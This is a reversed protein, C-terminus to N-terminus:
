KGGLATLMPRFKISTEVYETEADSDEVVGCGAFLSAENGQILASRIAVAFEGNGKYDQWGIPAAYLGRDLEEIERIKDIAEQKPFGGLAPTPHLRDILTFLSTDEGCKAIVPTHLHQIDRVKLLEPGNPISIETCTEEMAGRIMDVVYQHEVLNKKDNLLCDGLKRDEAETKGRAISGAISATFVTQGNKRVLREPTAGIFCDGNTEFAFIFSDPQEILLHALASEISIKNEFFLRLERALVIKRLTPATKLYEVAGTVTKKWQEPHIEKEAKVQPRAFNGAGHILSIVNELQHSTTHVLQEDDNKTCIINITLFTQGDVQSLLFKPIHFIADAFKDWLQTKPKNPDFSFGGFMYPGVGAIEFPNSLIAEDMLKKWEEEVIQFRKTSQNTTIIKCIGLGVFSHEGTSDEWFFREGQFALQGAAFFSLPDIDDIKNVVSILTSSGTAKAQSIGSLIKNKLDIGDTSIM